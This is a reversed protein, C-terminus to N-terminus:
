KAEGQIRGQASIVLVDKHRHWAMLVDYWTEYVDMLRDRKYMRERTHYRKHADIHCSSTATYSCMDCKYLKEGKCKQKHAELYSLSITSYSCLDCQYLKKGKHKGKHDQDNIAMDSCVDGQCIEEDRADAINVNHSRCSKKSYTTYTHDHNHYNHVSNDVNQESCDNTKEQANLELVECKNPRSKPQVDRNLTDHNRLDSSTRGCEGFYSDDGHDFHQSNQANNPIDQYEETQLFPMNPNDKSSSDMEKCSNPEYKICVAYDAENDLILNPRKHAHSNSTTSNNSSNDFTHETSDTVNWTNPGPSDHINLEEKIEVDVNPPNQSIERSVIDCKYDGSAYSTENDPYQESPETGTSIHVASMQYVKPESKIQFSFNHVFDEMDVEEDMTVPNTGGPLKINIHAEQLYIFIM